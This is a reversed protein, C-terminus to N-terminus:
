APPISKRGERSERRRRPWTVITEVVGILVYFSLLWV